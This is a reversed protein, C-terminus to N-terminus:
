KEVDGSNVKDNVPNIQMSKAATKASVIFFVSDGCAYVMMYQGAPM